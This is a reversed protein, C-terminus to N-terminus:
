AGMAALLAMVSAFRPAEDFSPYHDFTDILVAGMGAARAGVVDVSPIDGAYLAAAPAVQMRVLARRFIEPDPKRVGELASDLVVEFYQALGVREFLAALRGESNSVVGLRIGAARARVLAERLGEPVSRWLNFRAHEQKIASLAREAETHTAGASELLVQMYLDWGAEHSMGSTLFTEYRRKASPEARALDAASLAIGADQAARAVAVHDLYVLTNGADLLLAAPRLM